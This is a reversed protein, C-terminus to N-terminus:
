STSASEVSTSTAILLNSVNIGERSVTPMLPTFGATCSRAATAPSDNKLDSFLRARIATLIEVEWQRHFKAFPPQLSGPELFLQIPTKPFQERAVRWLLRRETWRLGHANCLRDFLWRPQKQYRRQARMSLWVALWIVGIAAAAILLYVLL